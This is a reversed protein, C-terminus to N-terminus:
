HLQLRAQWNGNHTEKCAQESDFRIHQDLGKIAIGASLLKEKILRKLDDGKKQELAETLAAKTDFVCVIVLSSPYRNFNVQHTIWQFGSVNVLANTCVETLSQCLAKEIKKDSKKM